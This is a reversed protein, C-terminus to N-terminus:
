QLVVASTTMLLTTLFFFIFYQVDNDEVNETPIDSGDPVLKRKCTDDEDATKVDTEQKSESASKNDASVLKYGEILTDFLVIRKNKYFGYLYANSHSSRRSGSVDM